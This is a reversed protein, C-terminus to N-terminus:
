EEKVFMEFYMVFKEYCKELCGGLEFIFLSKTQRLQPALSIIAYALQGTHPLGRQTGTRVVPKWDAFRIPSRLSDTPGNPLGAVMCHHNCSNCLGGGCGLRRGQGRGRRYYPLSIQEINAKPKQSSPICSLCYNADSSEYSPYIPLYENLEITPPLSKGHSKLNM